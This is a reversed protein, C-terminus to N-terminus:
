NRSHLSVTTAARTEDLMRVRCFKILSDDKFPKVKTIALELKDTGRPSLFLVSDIPIDLPRENLNQTELFSHYACMSYNAEFVSDIVNRYQQTTWGITDEVWKYTFCLRSNVSSKLFLQKLFPTAASTNYHFKDGVLGIYFEVYMFRTWDKQFYLKGVYSGQSLYQYATIFALQENLALTTLHLAAFFELFTPHSFTYKVRSESGPVSAVGVFSLQNIYDKM